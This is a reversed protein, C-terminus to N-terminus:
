KKIKISEFFKAIEKENLNEKEFTYLTSRKIKQLEFFVEEKEKNSYCRGSESTFAFKKINEGERKLKWYNWPESGCDDMEETTIEKLLQEGLIMLDFKMKNSDPDIQIEQIHLKNLIFSDTPNFNKNKIVSDIEMRIGSLKSNQPNEFKRNPNILNSSNQNSMIMIIYDEDTMVNYIHGTKISCEYCNRLKKPYEFEVISNSYKYWGNSMKDRQFDIKKKNWDQVFYISIGIISLIFLAKLNKAM